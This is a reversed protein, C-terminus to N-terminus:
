YNTNCIGTGFCHSVSTCTYEKSGDTAMSYNTWHNRFSGRTSDVRDGPSNRFCGDEERYSSCIPYRIEKASHLANPCQIDFYCSTLEILSSFVFTIDYGYDQRLWLVQKARNFKLSAYRMLARKLEDDDPEPFQTLSSNATTPDIFEESTGNEHGNRGKPNNVM